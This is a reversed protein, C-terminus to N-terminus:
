LGQFPIPNPLKGKGELRRFKRRKLGNLYIVAETPKVTHIM